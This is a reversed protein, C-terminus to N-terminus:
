ICSYRDGRHPVDDGSLSQKADIYIRGGRAHCRQRYDLFQNKFDARRYDRAELQADSLSICGSLIAAASSLLMANFFRRNSM